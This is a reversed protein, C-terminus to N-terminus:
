ILYMLVVVMVLVTWVSIMCLVGVTLMVVVQLRMRVVCVSVLDFLGMLVGVSVGDCVSSVVDCGAVIPRKPVRVWTLSMSVNGVGLVLVLVIIVVSLVLVCVTLVLLRVVPWCTFLSLVVSTLGLELM